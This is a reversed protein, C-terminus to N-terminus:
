FERRYIPPEEPEPPKDPVAKPQPPAYFRPKTNWSPEYPLSMMAKPGRRGSGKDILNQLRDATERSWPLRYTRPEGNGRDVMIFIGKGVIMKVGIVPTEGGPATLGAILPVPWGLALGVAVASVPVGAIFGAVGLARLVTSRRAWAAALAMAGLLVSLGLWPILAHGM